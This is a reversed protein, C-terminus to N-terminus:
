GSWTFSLCLGFCFLAVCLHVSQRDDLRDEVEVGTAVCVCVCVCMAALFLGLCIWILLCRFNRPFWFFPCGFLFFFEGQRGDPSCLGQSRLWYGYEWHLFSVWFFDWVVCVFIGLYAGMLLCFFCTTDDPHFPRHSQILHEFVWRSFFIM